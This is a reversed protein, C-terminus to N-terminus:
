RRCFSPAIAKCDVAQCSKSCYKKHCGCRKLARSLRGCVECSKGLERIRAQKSRRLIPRRLNHIPIPLTHPYFAMILDVEYFELLEAECVFLSASAEDNLHLPVDSLALWEDRNNGTNWAFDASNALAQELHSCITFLTPTPRHKCSIM